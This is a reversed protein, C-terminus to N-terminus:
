VEIELGLDSVAFMCIFPFVGDAFSSFFAKLRKYQERNFLMARRPNVCLEYSFGNEDLVLGELYVPLDSNILRLVRLEDKEM